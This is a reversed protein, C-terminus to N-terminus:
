GCPQRPVKHVINFRQCAHTSILPPKPPGKEHCARKKPSRPHYKSLSLSSLKANQFITRRIQYMIIMERPLHRAEWAEKLASDALPVHFESGPFESHQM